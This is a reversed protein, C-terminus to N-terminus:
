VYDCVEDLATKYIGSINRADASLSLYNFDLDLLNAALLIKAWQRDDISKLWKSSEILELILDERSIISVEGFPTKFLVTNFDSLRGINEIILGHGKWFRGEKKFGKGSVIETIQLPRNWLIDIDSSCYAGNTYYELATTGALVPKENNDQSLKETLWATFYLRRYLFNKEQIISKFNDPM